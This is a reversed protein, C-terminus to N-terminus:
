VFLQSVAGKNKGSNKNKNFYVLPICQAACIVATIRQTDTYMNSEYTRRLYPGCCFVRKRKGKKKKKGTRMLTLGCSQLLNRFSQIKIADGFKVFENEQKTFQVIYRFLLKQKCDGRGWFFDSCKSCVSPSIGVLM